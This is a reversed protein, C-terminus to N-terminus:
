CLHYWVRGADPSINRADAMPPPRSTLGIEQPVRPDDANDISVQLKEHDGGDLHQEDAYSRALTRIPLPLLFSLTIRCARRNRM